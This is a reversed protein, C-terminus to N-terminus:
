YTMLQNKLQKISAVAVTYDLMSSVKHVSLPLLLKDGDYQLLNRWTKAYRHIIDIVAQGTESILQNNILTQKLLSIAQQFETSAMDVINHNISYGSLLYEKLVQNAWIRFQTGRKSNVRYGVSIIADLSYYKLKRTVSRQGEIQVVSFDETTAEEILEGDQYINKLHLGITDSDKNFIEAMQKQSLWLTEKELTVDISISGEASNFLVLEKQMYNEM